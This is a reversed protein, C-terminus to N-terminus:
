KKEVVCMMLSTFIFCEFMSNMYSNVLQLRCKYKWAVGGLILGGLGALGALGALGYRFVPFLHRIKDLETSMEGSSSVHPSIDFQQFFSIM